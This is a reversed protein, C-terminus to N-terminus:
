SALAPLWSAVPHLRSAGAYQQGRGCHPVTGWEGSKRRLVHGAALVSLVQLKATGASLTKAGCQESFCASSEGTKRRRSGEIAYRPVKM